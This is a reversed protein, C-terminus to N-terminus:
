RKKGTGGSLEEFLSRYAGAQRGPAYDETAIRRCNEGMTRWAARDAIARRVTEALGDGADPDFLWGSVGPRVMDPVGGRRSGIVPVGCALSELVSNPLNDARSPCVFLDCASYHRSIESAGRLPGRLRVDLGDPWVHDPKEGWYLVGFRNTDLQELAAVFLDTGKRTSAWTSSFGLWVRGTELGLGDRAEAQPRPKFAASDVGYPIHEVRTGDGLAARAEGAIWLSPGVMVINSRSGFFGRRTARAAEIPRDPKVFERRGEGPETWTFAHTDFSWCDHMTWVLPVDGQIAKLAAHGLGSTHINHVNVLGPCGTALRERFVREHRHRRMRDALPRSFNKLLRELPPRKRGADLTMDVETLQDAAPSFNWRHLPYGDALLGEVLGTAANAAGGRLTDCLMITPGGGPMRASNPLRVPERCPFPNGARRGNLLM